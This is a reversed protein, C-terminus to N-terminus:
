PTGKGKYYLWMALEGADVGSHVISMVVKSLLDLNGESELRLCEEMMLDLTDEKEGPTESNHMYSYLFNLDHERLAQLVRDRHEKLVAM